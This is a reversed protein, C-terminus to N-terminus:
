FAKGKNKVMDRSQREVRYSSVRTDLDRRMSDESSFARRILAMPTLILFFILGLFIRNNVAGLVAGVLSAVLFVPRLGRPWLEAVTAILAALWLAGAPRPRDALWPFLLYFVAVLMAAFVFGFGRLEKSSAVLSREKAEQLTM